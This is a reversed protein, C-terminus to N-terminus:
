RLAKPDITTSDGHGTKRNDGGSGGGGGPQFLDVFLDVADSGMRSSLSSMPDSRRQQSGTASQHQQQQGMVSNPEHEAAPLQSVTSERTMLGGSAAAATAASLAADQGLTGAVNWSAGSGGAGPFMPNTATAGGGGLGAAAGFSIQQQTDNAMMGQLVLSQVKSPDSINSSSNNIAGQEALNGTWSPMAAGTPSLLSQSPSSATAQPFFSSMSLSSAHQNQQDDSSATALALELTRALAPNMTPPLSVAPSNQQQPLWGMSPQESWAQQQQSMMAAAMPHNSLGGQQMQAILDHSQQLQQQQAQLQQQQQSPPLTSVCRGVAATDMLSPSYLAPSPKQDAQVEEPTGRGGRRGAVNDMSSSPSSVRLAKAPAGKKSGRRRKKTEKKTSLAGEEGGQEKNLKRWEAMAKKHRAKEEKALAQYPERSADDLANWREAIAKGMNSFIVKGSEGQNSNEALYRQRERQFFFNYASLPRKPREVVEIVLNNSSADAPAAVNSPAPATPASTSSDKNAEDKSSSSPVPPPVNMRHLVCAQLPSRNGSGSTASTDDEQQNSLWNSISAM